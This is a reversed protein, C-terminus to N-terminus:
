RILQAEQEGYWKRSVENVTRELKVAAVISEHPAVPANVLNGSFYDGNYPESRVFLNPYLRLADSLPQTPPAFGTSERAPTAFMFGAPAGPLWSVTTGRNGPAEVYFRSEQSVVFNAPNLSDASSIIPYGPSFDYPGVYEYQLFLSLQSPDSLPYEWDAWVQVRDATFYRWIGSVRDSFGYKSVRVRLGTDSAPLKLLKRVEASVLAISDSVTADDAFQEGNVIARDLSVGTGFADADSTNVVGDGDIDGDLGNAVADGDTDVEGQAGDLLGDGDIDKEQVANDALGDGDIDKEQPSADPLGDADMDLEASDGNLLRDGVYRGKLPGSTAVGGDINRDAGNLVGDGDVDRDRSNPVGDRDLDAQAASMPTSAVAPAYVAVAQAALLALVTARLARGAQRPLPRGNSSPLSAAAARVAPVNRAASRRSQNSM